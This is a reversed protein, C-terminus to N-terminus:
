FDSGPGGNGPGGEPLPDTNYLFETLSEEVQALQDAIFADVDVGNEELMSAFSQGEARAEHVEEPTMGTAEVVARLLGRHDHRGRPGREPLDDTSNLVETLQAEAEALHEAAEEETLRGEAVANDLRDEFPVLQEDIFSDVSVGNEELMSAFSQGEARAERVEVPEMGTVEAIAHVLGRLPQGPGHPGPGGQNVAVVAGAGGIMSVAVLGGVIKGVFTNLM